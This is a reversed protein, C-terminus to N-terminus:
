SQQFNRRYQLRWKCRKSWHFLALVNSTKTRIWRQMHAKQWPVITLVLRMWSFSIITIGNSRTLSMTSRIIDESRIQVTRRELVMYTLGEQHLIRCNSSVSISVAFHQSFLKKSEELYLTPQSHYLEVLWIRKAAGFKRTDSKYRNRSFFGNRQFACVWNAITSKHKKYITALKAKTLGLFFFGYLM